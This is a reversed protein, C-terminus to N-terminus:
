LYHSLDYTCSCIKYQYYVFFWLCWYISINPYVIHTHTHTHTRAHTHTHTRARARLYVHVYIYKILL